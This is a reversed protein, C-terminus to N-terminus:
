LTMAIHRMAIRFVCEGGRLGGTGCQRVSGVRVGFLAMFELTLERTAEDLNVVGAVKPSLVAAVEEATKKLVFSDRIVGACAPDGDGRWPERAGIRDAGCRKATRWTWWGTSWGRGLGKLRRCGYGVGGDLESRGTLVIVATKARARDGRAFILGLGGAGGTILYVGGDRWPAAAEESRLESWSAVQREGGIYRM